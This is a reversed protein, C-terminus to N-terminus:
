KGIGMLDFMFAYELAVEKYRQFRGSAGGHGADMNTHLLLLNKDTKLDRLKAVWKAPEWYQVQSDFLGTTVLMNPYAKATVNDYPSYRKMYEYDKKNEPNGWEDYENTTLPITPDSMTTIVDVFPVQAVVGKFLEPAFNVVGGMLLGGASGGMAFLGDTSSYKEQLLFKACDVFDYFSNLKNQMKGDDYWPRGLFQGGRIHAIAFAFGRDLLSLRTSSFYPDVTIGYAGYAYLLLPAKGDKHFGKKYVISIPIKKGDRATAYLRKTEYNDPNHGGVVEQRKKLSREKTSMNYDYTTNPTTLSSYEFRLLESAMDTNVGISATYAEEEFAVYHESGDKQNRVRFNMLGKSREALVLYKNFVDIDELYVESRHAIVEKWAKKDATKGEEVEMLRFNQANWNTRVYFKNEFHTIDYEHSAERPAFQRFQGEPKDTELMWYDSSLTSNNYIIIYKDSKSRYVGIYYTPDKEHYVMVDAEQGTGLKHRYIKESLLTLENSKCYFLTKNDNAWALSGTTGKIVDKYLEGTELNKFYVTYVRRSLTDTAYALIKNDPSVSMSGLDFYALGKALENANLMVEEKAELSGKRRCYIPYEKGEEYRTNYWYGNKFYPVSADDQKIRAIIEKYLSEQFVETGKLAVKTYANEAELYAYVKKTQEDKVEAEKQEDSLRMWYYNDIRTEGHMKLEHPIQEADPAKINDMRNQKNKDTKANCASLLVLALLSLKKTLNNKMM